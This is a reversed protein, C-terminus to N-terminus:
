GKVIDTIKVTTLRSRHGKTRHYGERRRYKFVRIKDGKFHSVVQALVKAGKVLPKGIVAKQGDHLLVVDTFEITGGEAPVQRDLELTDGKEARYQRGCTKFIAYM